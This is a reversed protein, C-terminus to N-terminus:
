FGSSSARSLASASARGRFELTLAQREDDLALDFSVVMEGEDRM